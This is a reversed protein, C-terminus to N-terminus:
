NACCPGDDGNTKETKGIVIGIDDKRGGTKNKDKDVIQRTLETFMENIGQNQKASTTM